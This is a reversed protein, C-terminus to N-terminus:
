ALMYRSCLSGCLYSLFYQLPVFVNYLMYMPTRLFKELPPLTSMKRVKSPVGTSFIRKILLLAEKCM